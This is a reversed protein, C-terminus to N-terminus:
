CVVAPASSRLRLCAGVEPRRRESAASSATCTCGMRIASTRRVHYREFIIVMEINAEFPQEAGKLSKLKIYVSNFSFQVPLLEYPCSPTSPSWTMFSRVLHFDAASQGTGCMKCVKEAVQVAHNQSSM